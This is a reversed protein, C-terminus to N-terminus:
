LCKREKNTILCIVNSSHVSFFYVLCINYIIYFVSPESDFLVRIDILCNTYREINVLSPNYRVNEFVTM